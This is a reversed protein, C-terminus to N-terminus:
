LEGEKNFVKTVNSDEYNASKDNRISVRIRFACDFLSLNFKCSNKYDMAKRQLVRGDESVVEFLYKANTSQSKVVIEIIDDIRNYNIGNIKTNQSKGEKKILGTTMKMMDLMQNELDIYRAKWNINDNM